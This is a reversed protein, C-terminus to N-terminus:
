KDKSGNCKSCYVYDITSDAHGEWEHDCHIRYVGARCSKGWATFIDYDVHETQVAAVVRGKPIPDMKLVDGDTVVVITAEKKPDLKYALNLAGQLYTSGTPIQQRALTLWGMVKLSDKESPLKAWGHPWVLPSTGFIIPMVDYQDVAQSAIGVAYNVAATYHGSMSSSADVIVILKNSLRESPQVVVDLRPPPPVTQALSSSALLLVLLWTKVM